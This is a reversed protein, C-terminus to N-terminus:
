EWATFIHENPTSPQIMRNVFYLKYKSQLAITMARNWSHFNTGNLTPTVLVLTPNENSHLFYPNSIDNPQTQDAIKIKHTYTKTKHSM